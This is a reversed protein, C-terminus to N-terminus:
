VFDVDALCHELYVYTFSFSCVQFQIVTGARSKMSQSRCKPSFSKLRVYYFINSFRYIIYVAPSAVKEAGTVVEGNWIM